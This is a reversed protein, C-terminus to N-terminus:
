ATATFSAPVKHPIERLRTASALQVARMLLHPRTCPGADECCLHAARGAAEHGRRILCTDRHTWEGNLACLMACGGEKHDAPPRCGM